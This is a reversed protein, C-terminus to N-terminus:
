NGNGEAPERREFTVVNVTIKAPKLELGYTKLANQLVEPRAKSVPLFVTWKGEVGTRDEVPAGLEDGIWGAIQELTCSRFKM